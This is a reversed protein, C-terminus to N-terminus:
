KRFDDAQAASYEKSRRQCSIRTPDLLQPVAADSFMIVLFFVLFLVLARGSSRQSSASSISPIDVPPFAKKTPQVQGSLADWVDRLIVQWRIIFFLFHLM